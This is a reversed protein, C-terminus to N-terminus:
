QGEVRIVKFVQFFEFIKFIEFLELPVFRLDLKYVSVNAPQLGAVSKYSSIVSINYGGLYKIANKWLPFVCNKFEPIM